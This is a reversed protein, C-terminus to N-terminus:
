AGGEEFQRRHGIRQSYREGRGVGQFSHEGRVDGQSCREGRGEKESCRDGKDRSKMTDELEAIRLGLVQQQREKRSVRCERPRAANRARKAATLIEEEEDAPDELRM